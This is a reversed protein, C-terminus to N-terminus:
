TLQIESSITSDNFRQVTSDFCGAFTLFTFYSFYNFNRSPETKSFVTRRCRLDDYTRPVAHDLRRTKIFDYLKTCNQVAHHVTTTSNFCPSANFHGFHCVWGGNTYCNQIVKTDTEHCGRRNSFHSLRSVQRQLNNRRLSGSICPTPFREMKDWKPNPIAVFACKLPRVHVGIPKSRPATLGDAPRRGSRGLHDREGDGRRRKTQFRNHQAGRM